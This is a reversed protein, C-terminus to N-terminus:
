HPFLEDADADTFEYDTNCYHCHIRAAGDEKIIARLQEEGLSVLVRTLYRRSCNCKYEAKRAEWVAESVDFRSRALTEADTIELANVLDELDYSCVKELTEADAFPLPQLVAVGAFECGNAGMKVMTKVYTPLQESIRYYEEFAEDIGGQEPLACAGVFPRSYGDDRIITLAGRGLARKEADHIEGGMETNHIYGRIRLARNGSVAIEECEGDTKLSLSIEGTNEKLCASMFTMASLAKGFVYASSASLKHLQIGKRVIDTTNILTLSVQEGFVLTRLVNKM